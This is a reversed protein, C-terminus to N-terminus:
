CLRLRQSNGQPHKCSPPTPLVHLSQRATEAIEFQLPGGAQPLGRAGDPQALPRCAFDGATRARLMHEGDALWVTDPKLVEFKRDLLNPAVPHAHRSDTTIPV